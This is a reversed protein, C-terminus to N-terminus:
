SPNEHRIYPLLAEWLAKKREIRMTNAPSSSPLDLLTVGQIKPHDCLALQRRGIQSATSGNFAIARIAPLAMIHDTLGNPQVSRMHQDLSGPRVAQAVVDWLGIGAQSITRLREEYPLPLLDVGTLMTLLPWFHNRPHGYYQSLELSRVGPLSGLILLRTDPGTVPPLCYSPNETSTM